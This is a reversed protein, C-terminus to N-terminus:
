RRYGGEKRGARRGMSQRSDGATKNGATRLAPNGLRITRPGCAHRAQGQWNDLPALEPPIFNNKSGQFRQASKAVYRRIAGEDLSSNERIVVAAGVDEGLTAHKMSFSAAQEIEPHAALVDDIEQPIIKEGGRNIQEKIRGKLFLYGDADLYGTDGTHFWGDRFSQATAEKNGEYGAVVNEGRVLIEGTESPSLERGNPDRISIM